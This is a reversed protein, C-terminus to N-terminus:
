ELIKMLGKNVIAVAKGTLAKNWLPSNCSKSKNTSENLTWNMEPDFVTLNAASGKAIPIYPLGLVKRPRTGMIEIIQDIKGLGYISLMQHFLTQLGLAGYAAIEFECLKKDAEHPNHDSVVSIFENKLVAEQLYKRDVITRLPPRLKLNTDFM